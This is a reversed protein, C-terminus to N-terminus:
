STGAAMLTSVLASAWALFPPWVELIMLCFGLLGIIAPLGLELGLIRFVQSARFRRFWVDFRKLSIPIREATTAKEAAEIKRRLDEVGKTINGQINIVNMINPQEMNENAAEELQAGVRQLEDAVNSLNGIKGAQTSWWHYLTSQIPDDPYDGHESAVTGVTVPNLRTGTIRLRNHHIYDFAQWLFQVFLYTVICFLAAQLWIPELDDVFKLGAFGTAQIQVGSFHAFVAVSSVILLNRKTRRLNESFEAFVPEGLDVEVKKAEDAM